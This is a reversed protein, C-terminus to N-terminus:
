TQWKCSELKILLVFLKEVLKIFLNKLANQDNIEDQANKLQM